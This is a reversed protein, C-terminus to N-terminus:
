VFRRLLAEAEAALREVLEGAPPVDDIAGAAAGAYVYDVQQPTLEDEHGHWRDTFDSRLARGPFEEPWPIELAIDYVRTHVTDTERAALIQRKKADGGLAERTAYFRTGIWAGAAGMALVGALGRGSAIGGAALVPVDGVAALVAELLPLTGVSGTHGGADTGQAVVFDAGAAVAARAAEASSVQVLLPVGADRVRAAYPAVDGASIALARPRAELAADLIDPETALRWALMGIAVPERAAAADRRVDAASNRPGATLMGLAGAASVADSLAPGAVGGMPAQVIPHRLGLRDTLATRLVVEFYSSRRRPTRRREELFL